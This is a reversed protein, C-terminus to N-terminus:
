REENANSPDDKPTQDAGRRTPDTEQDVAGRPNAAENPDSVAERVTGSEPASSEDDPPQGPKPMVHDERKGVSMTLM